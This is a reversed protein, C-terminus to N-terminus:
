GSLARFADSKFDLANKYLVLSLCGFLGVYIIVARWSPAADTRYFKTWNKLNRLSVRSQGCHIQIDSQGNGVELTMM